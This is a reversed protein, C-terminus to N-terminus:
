TPALTAAVARTVAVVRGRLRRSRRAETPRTRRRRPGAATDIAATREAHIAQVLFHDM